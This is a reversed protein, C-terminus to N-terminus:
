KKNDKGNKCFLSAAPSIQGGCLWAKMMEAQHRYIRNQAYIDQYILDGQGNLEIVRPRLSGKELLVDIGVSRLGPYCGAARICLQEVAEMIHFPLGLETGKLPHNNLHLNTIPGSSLRALLFDMRGDQVVARLDYSFGNHEAKAYWREVVCDLALLRGALSLVQERDTFRRLRKTNVLRGTEPDTMACTYLIMRGSRPQWRFAAAGAAGSGYVPKIFVQFIHNREMAELLREVRDAGPYGGDISEATRDAGPYGGDMPTVAQDAGSIGCEKPPEGKWVLGDFGELEETVPIWAEALRRKCGRKDLLARIDEPRNLFTIQQEAGLEALWALKREYDRTLLNLEDLCCSEWLPPDIKLFVHEWAAEKGCLMSGPQWAQMSIQRSGRPSNLTPPVQEAAASLSHLCFGGGSEASSDQHGTLSGCPSQSRVPFEKWDMIGLPIGAAEAGKALYVARKTGPVGLLIAQRM